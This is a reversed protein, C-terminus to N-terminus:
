LRNHMRWPGSETMNSLVPVAYKEHVMLGHKDLGFGPPLPPMLSLKPDRERSHRRLYELDSQEIPSVTDQIPRRKLTM